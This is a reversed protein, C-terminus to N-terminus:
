KLNYLANGSPFWLRSWLPIRNFTVTFPSLLAWQFKSSLSLISPQTPTAPGFEQSTDWDPSTLNIPHRWHIRQLELICLSAPQAAWCLGGYGWCACALLLLLSFKLNLTLKPQTTLGCSVDFIFGLGGFYSFLLSSLDYKLVGFWKRVEVSFFSLINFTKAIITGGLNALCYSLFQHLRYSVGEGEEMILLWINNFWYNQCHYSCTILCWSNNLQFNIPAVSILWTLPFRQIELSVDLRQCFMETLIRRSCSLCIGCISLSSFLM